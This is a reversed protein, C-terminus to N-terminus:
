YSVEHAGAVPGTTAQVREHGAETLRRRVDIAHDGDRCLFLCTPGSGSLLGTLAGAAVGADLVERLDPRLQLAPAALDNGVAAALADADGSRLAALLPEPVEPAPDGGGARDLEAYVAPTSLGIDSEVAVWWWTGNDEVREVVEGRGHGTASGGVLAFPVDSGLRAALALLDEDSTELQWLRDLALLTAAADASGGALGAAVPIQKEIRIAAARRVGHHETLMRGARVAVNDTGRPVESGDIREHCRVDLDWRPADTVTVDDYIGVAQYLTALPHFGDERVRGVGLHLNIKAAARVTLGSM